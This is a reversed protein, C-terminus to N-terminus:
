GVWDRYAAAMAMAADKPPVAGVGAALGPCYLGRQLDPLRFVERLVARM